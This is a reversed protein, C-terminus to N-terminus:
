SVCIKAVHYASQSTLGHTKVYFPLPLATGYYLRFVGLLLALGVGVAVLSRTRIERRQGLLLVLPIVIADPRTLYLALTVGAIKPPSTGKRIVAIALAVSLVAFTTELGSQAVELFLSLSLGVACPLLADGDPALRALVILAVLLSAFLAAKLALALHGPAIVYLLTGVVQLTQSTMGYCPGDAVNWSFTHHHWFNYAFREVFWGDEWLGDGVSSLYVVCLAGAFGLWLAWTGYKSRAAISLPQLTAATARGKLAPRSTARGSGSDSKETRTVRVPARSGDPASRALHKLDTKRLPSMSFMSNRRQLMSSTTPSQSNM